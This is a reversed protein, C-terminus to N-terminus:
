LLSPGVRWRVEPRSECYPSSAVMAAEM